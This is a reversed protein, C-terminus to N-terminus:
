RASRTGAGPPPRRSGARGEGGVSSRRRALGSRRPVRPLGARTALFRSMSRAARRADNIRGKRAGWPKPIAGAGAADSLATRQPGSTCSGGSPMEGTSAMPSQHTAAHGPGRSGFSEHAVSRVAGDCELNWQQRRLLAVPGRGDHWGADHRTFARTSELCRCM